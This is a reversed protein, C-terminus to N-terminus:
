YGFKDNLEYLVRFYVSFEEYESGGGEEREFVRPIDGFSERVWFKMVVDCWRVVWMLFLKEKLVMMRCNKETEGVGGESGEKFFL